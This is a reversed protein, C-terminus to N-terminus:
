SRPETTAAPEATFGPDYTYLWGTAREYFFRFVLRMMGNRVWQGVPGATKADRNDAGVKLMKTIRPRREAEYDALARAVSPADRLCRALVLADEIAMSAGQGAGVPHAADGILVMRDNRWTPVPDLSHMVTTRHLRTTAAIIRSPVPEARYLEAVRRQWESDPVGRRDPERPDAVQAAWWVGGDPVPLHMFAGHRGLTMNFVGPEFGDMESVGSVTYLGAYRPRPAAGDLLGRTASWIGDAGVLLDARTRRGSSFEAVVGDGDPTAITLREDTTLTIGARVAHERLAAVLQARMITVSRMPDDALRGRAVDGLLAGSGSWVRQRPVEVGRRRVEDLCGLAALGRLGNVALGLFSGVDGDPNTHAEHVTVEAGVSRLAIAAVTGAIGAGVVVVRPTM